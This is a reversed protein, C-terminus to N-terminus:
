ENKMYSEFLDVSKREHKESIHLYTNATIQIDAHGLRESVTKIDVGSELLMVAHTHRLLHASKRETLNAKRLMNSMLDQPKTYYFPKGNEDVMVFDSQIYYDNSAKNQLQWEKYEKLDDLLTNDIAITRYANKSKPPGIGKKGRQQDITITRKDFNIHSWTLGLLEGSRFGTRLLVSIMIRKYIKEGKTAELLQVVEEKTLFVMKEEEEKQIQIGKLVNRDLEDNEVASNLIAMMEGHVRLVTNKSYNDKFLLDNIFIQYDPRKISNLKYGKYHDLLKNQGHKATVNSSERRHVSSIQNYKELWNEFLVEGKKVAQIGGKFLKEEILTAAIRAEGKTKFGSKSLTKQKAGENYKIRYEWSSGRKRFILWFYDSREILILVFKHIYSDLLCYM